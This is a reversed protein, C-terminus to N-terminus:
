EVDYSNKVLGHKINKNIRLQRSLVDAISKSIEQKTECRSEVKKHLNILYAQHKDGAIEDQNNAVVLDAGNEILSTYAREVLEDKSLGVELKFSIVFAHPWAQRILRIVKPTRVFTVVLKDNNSSIKRDSHIEPTYDLVAMAHVIADFYTDKLRKQIVTVLDDLTETEILTLRSICDKGLLHTDPMGSGAGYVFTVYAGRRIFENAIAVGLKGTSKNSIYRVADIYGRTPGSTIM